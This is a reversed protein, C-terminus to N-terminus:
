HGGPCFQRGDSRRDRGVVVYNWRWGSLQGSLEELGAGPYPVRLLSWDDPNLIVKSRIM